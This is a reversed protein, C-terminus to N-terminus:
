FFKSSPTKLSYRTHLSYETTPTPKITNGFPHHFLMGVVEQGALSQIHFVAQINLCGPASCAFSSVEGQANTHACFSFSGSGFCFFCEGGGAREAPAWSAHILPHCCGRTVMRLLAFRCWCLVLHTFRGPIRTNVGFLHAHVIRFCHYEHPATSLVM